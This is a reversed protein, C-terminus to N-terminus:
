WATRSTGCPPETNWAEAGFRWSPRHSPYNLETRSAACPKVEMTFQFTDPVKGDNARCAEAFRIMGLAGHVNASHKIRLSPAPRRALGTDVVGSTDPDTGSEVWMHVTAGSKVVAALRQQGDILRGHADSAVPQHTLTYKGALMASALTAM